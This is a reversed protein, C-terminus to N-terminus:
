QAPQAHVLPPARRLAFYLLVGLILMVGSLLAMMRVAWSGLTASADALVGTLFLALGNFSKIVFTSVGFYLGTVEDDQAEASSVIAEGELGLLVSALPGALSFVIMATVLPSGLADIGVLLGVCSYTAGLLVSAAVVSREWGYRASLKPVVAFGAIATVIFPALLLAVDKQTGGLLQTAIFPAAATMTTFAMQGGAFLLVIAQFRRNSLALKFNFPSIGTRAKASGRREGLGPPPAAKMPPRAFYPLAMLVSCPVCWIVVAPLYGVANILLPSFSFCFGTAIMLGAGLVNSLRARTRLDGASYDDVLSWYPIAYLTYGVFFVLMGLFLVSWRLAQTMELNPAFVM